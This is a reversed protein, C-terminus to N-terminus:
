INKSLQYIATQLVQWCIKATHEDPNFGSSMQQYPHIYNRFDRLAHSFKKVDEGLLKLSCAVDIFNALSWDFFPLVKGSKKDKPSCSSSNFDKPTKSAVGLLIGELSSGCLFITALPAKANLCIRVEELRQKLVDTVVGDLGLKDISIEKFEKNVFEDESTEKTEEPYEEQDSITKIIITKGQRDIKYGDFYLYKNFDLIFGDLDGFRGIYNVPSFLSKICEDIKTSGNIKKLNEETYVWRSPFGSVYQDKFGLNNFFSILQPGSRYQTTENILIRLAEITKPQLKM